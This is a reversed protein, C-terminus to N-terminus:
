VVETPLGARGCVSAEVVYGGSDGNSYGVDGSQRAAVHKTVSPNHSVDASSGIGNRAGEETRICAGIASPLEERSRDDVKFFLFSFFYM